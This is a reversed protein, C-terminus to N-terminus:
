PEVDVLSRAEGIPLDVVMELGGGEVNEARITGRHLEIARSAIALGLGSGGTRRDRADAVRFFPEFLSELDEEPVGAGHDRVRLQARGDVVELEVEVSGDDPSHRIANRVINDIASRVLTVHGEILITPAEALQVSRGAPAAEFSADDVVQRVLEGLDISEPQRDRDGVQLRELLLLQEILDDLRTTEVEIRDLPEAAGDGAQQRALELAVRLRALPSRLEHSVDQLLRQQSSVLTELREAMADFDRALAGIEDNRRAVPSGVRAALDGVGLRRTADRLVGVPRALHRALALSVLGVILALAALRPWLASHELLDVVRPPGDVSSVLVMQRGDPVTVPRAVFHRGARRESQEVGREAVERALERAGPPSQQPRADTGDELFLLMRAPGRGGRHRPRAADLAALGGDEIIRTAGDLMRRAREDGQEQWRELRPRSRTFFPSTVVLGVTVVVMAVWFWLFIRLFLSNM